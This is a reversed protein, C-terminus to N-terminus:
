LSNSDGEGWRWRHLCGMFVLQNQDGAPTSCINQEAHSKNLKSTNLSKGLSNENSFTKYVYGSWTHIIKMHFKNPILLINWTLQKVKAQGENKPPWRQEEGQDTTSNRIYAM